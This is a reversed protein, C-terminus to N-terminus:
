LFVPFLYLICLSLPNGSAPVPLYFRMELFQCLSLYDVISQHFKAAQKGLPAKEEKWAIPQWFVYGPRRCGPIVLPEDEPTRLWSLPRRGTEKIASQQFRVLYDRMIPLMATQM